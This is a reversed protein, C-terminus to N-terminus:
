FFVGGLTLYLWALLGAVILYPGFAIRNNLVAQSWCYRCGFDILALVSAILALYPLTFASLWAGWAAMLKMDGGGLGHQNRMLYYVSDLLAFSGYGIAAGLIAMSPTVGSPNVVSVLLGLWLLGLTLVDPLLQHRWDIVLLPILFWILLLSCIVLMRDQYLLVVVLSMLLTASEVLPYQLSIRTHCFACRGKLLVYSVVPINHWWALQSECHPCHSAPWALNWETVNCQGEILAPLRYIVVNLFSGVALSILVILIILLFAVM